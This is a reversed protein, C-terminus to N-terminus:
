GLVPCQRLRPMENLEKHAMSCCHYEDDHVERAYANQIEFTSYHENISAGVGRDLYGMAPECADPQGYLESFWLNLQDWNYDSKDLIDHAWWGGFAHAFIPTASGPFVHLGDWLHNSCDTSVINLKSSDYGNSLAKWSGWRYVFDDRSLIVLDYAVGDFQELFAKALDFQQDVTEPSSIWVTVNSDISHLRSLYESSLRALSNHHMAVYVDVAFGCERAPRVLNALMSPWARSLFDHDGVPHLWGGRAARHPDYILGRVVFAVKPAPTPRPAPPSLSRTSPPPPSRPFCKYYDAEMSFDQTKRLVEEHRAIVVHDTKFGTGIVDRAFAYMAGNQYANGRNRYRQLHETMTAMKRAMESTMVYHFDSPCGVVNGPFYPPLCNSYYVADDCYRRLDV